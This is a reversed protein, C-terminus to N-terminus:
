IFIHGVTETAARLTKQGIHAYRMTTKPNKHGLLQQAEYLSHGSNVLFSAFTHRLDHIRVDQIGLEHRLRNWYLYIDSIPQGPSKGPFLWPSDPVRPISNIVEIAANSLIIHRSKGSKSLPVWLIKHELNINEWRARLIENKRAGTLLLLRLAFAAIKDSELLRGMLRRAEYRSLFRERFTHIKFCKINACPSKGNQFIGYSAALSCISKFVSLYRNCTAPALGAMLLEHLWDDVEDGNIFALIREGFAPSLISRFIRADMRWSRKRIEIYPIYVRIVFDNLTFKKQNNSIIHRPSKRYAYTAM